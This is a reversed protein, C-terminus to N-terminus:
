NRLTHLLQLMTDNKYPLVCRPLSVVGEGRFSFHPKCCSIHSTNWVCTAGFHRVNKAPRRNSWAPADKLWCCGNSPGATPRLAVCPNYHVTCQVVIGKLSALRPVCQSVMWLVTGHTGKYAWKRQCFTIRSGCPALVLNLVLNLRACLEGGHCSPSFTWFTCHDTGQNLVNCPLHCPLVNCPLHCPPLNPQRHEHGRHVAM